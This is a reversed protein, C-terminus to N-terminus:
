NEYAIATQRQEGLGEIGLHIVDGAKLYLPPKQGMGVGEPTGTSIIDGPLLTMFQSIYSILHPIKFILDSTNSNQMRKGNLDLWLHLNHHDKIEEKTLNGNSKFYLVGSDGILTDIEMFESSSQELTTTFSLSISKNNLDTLNLTYDEKVKVIVGRTGNDIVLPEGTEENIDTVEYGNYFTVFDNEVFDEVNEGFIKERIKANFDDVDKNAYTIYQVYNVNKEAVAKKYLKAINDISDDLNITAIGGSPSLLNPIPIYDAPKSQETGHEWIPDLYNLIPSGKKQRQPTTLHLINEPKIKSKLDFPTSIPPLQGHDGAYIVLVKNDADNEIRNFDKESLMSMEDVILITRDKRYKMIKSSKGTQQTGFETKVSNLLSAVSHYNIEVNEVKLKKASLSEALQNKAANALASGVINLHEGPKLNNVIHELASALM